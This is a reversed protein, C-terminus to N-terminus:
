VGSRPCTPNQKLKGLGSAVVIACVQQSKLEHERGQKKFPHGLAVSLSSFGALINVASKASWEPLCM